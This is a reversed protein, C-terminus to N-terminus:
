DLIYFVLKFSNRMLPLNNIEGRKFYIRIRDFHHDKYYKSRDIKNVLSFSKHSIVLLERVSQLSFEDRRDLGLFLATEPRRDLYAFDQTLFQAM